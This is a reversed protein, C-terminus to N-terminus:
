PRRSSQIKGYVDILRDVVRDWSFQETVFRRGSESLIHRAQDDHRLQVMADALARSDGPPVLKSLAPGIQGSIGGVDAAISPLGSAMAELLSIPLGESISPLVHADAYAFYPAISAHDIRGILRIEEIEKQAAKVESSLPGDGIIMFRMTRRENLPIMRVAELLTSIGKVNTIRGVFLFIFSGADYALPRELKDRAFEDVNVGNSLIEARKNSQKATELAMADTCFVHAAKRIAVHQMFQIGQRFPTPWDGRHYALGHMTFVLNTDSSCLAAAFGGAADHAHFIYGRNKRFENMAFPLTSLKLGFRNRICPVRIVSVGRVIDRSTRNLENPVIVSVNVGRSALRTSIEYVHTEIGGIIPPFTKPGIMMIKLSSPPAEVERL